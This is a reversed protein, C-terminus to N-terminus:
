GPPSYCASTRSELEAAARLRRRRPFDESSITMSTISSASSRMGASSSSSSLPGVVKTIWSLPKSVDSSVTSMCSITLNLRRMVLM